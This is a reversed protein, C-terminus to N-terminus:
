PPVGPNNEVSLLSEHNLKGLKSNTKKSPSKKGSSTRARRWCVGRMCSMKMKVCKRASTETTKKWLTLVITRIGRPAILRLADQKRGAGAFESTVKAVKRKGKEEKRSELRPGSDRELVIREKKSGKWQQLAETRKLQSGKRWEMWRQSGNGQVSDQVALESLKGYGEEYAEECDTGAAM